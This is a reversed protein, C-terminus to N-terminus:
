PTLTFRTHGTQLHKLKPRSAGSGGRVLRTSDQHTMLPFPEAYRTPAAGAVPQVLSDIAANIGATPLLPKIYRREIESVIGAAAPALDLLSPLNVAPAVPEVPPAGPEPLSLYRAADM